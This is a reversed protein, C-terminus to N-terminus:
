VWIAAPWGDSFQEPPDPLSIAEGAAFRRASWAAAGADLVDDVGANWGALGLEGSLAIGHGLLLERRQAAGAWTSKRSTLSHGAMQAFSVEPHVEIVVYSGRRAFREVDFLKVKLGFAQVSIGEGALRRNVNSATPHDPAELARRVPTMFVPSWRSGTSVDVITSMWPEYRAWAGTETRYFRVSRYRHEDIGLNKVAV